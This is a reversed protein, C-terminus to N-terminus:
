ADERVARHPRPAGAPDVTLRWGGECAKVGPWIGAAQLQEARRLAQAETTYVKPDAAM